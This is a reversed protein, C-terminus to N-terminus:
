TSARGRCSPRTMNTTCFTEESTENGSTAIMYRLSFPQPFLSCSEPSPPLAVKQILKLTAKGENQAVAPFSAITPAWKPWMPWPGLISGRMTLRNTSCATTTLALSTLHGLPLNLTLAALTKIDALPATAGPPIKIIRLTGVIKCIGAM